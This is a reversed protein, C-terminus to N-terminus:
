SFMGHAFLDSRPPLESLPFRALTVVRPLETRIVVETLDLQNCAQKSNEDIKIGMKNLRLSLKNVRIFDDPQNLVTILQNLSEEPSPLHSNLLAEGAEGLKQRVVETEHRMRAAAPTDQDMKKMQQQLNRLRARLKQHDLQLRHFALKGMMIHELANTVLGGYLCQRLGERTESETPAPSYIRHDSFSVATQQVDRNLVDGTLEMGLVPKETKRMCLLACCEPIVQNGHEDIFERIESSQSFITQLDTVNVFFANVYPDSIFNKRCVDIASPIMKVIDDTYELTNRTVHQLKRKYGSVLRIRSDTADILQEMARTVKADYRQRSEKEKIRHLFVTRLGSLTTNVLTKM